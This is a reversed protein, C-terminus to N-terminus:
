LSTKKKKSSLWIIYGIRLLTLTLIVGRAVIDSLKEKLRAHLSHPVRRPAKIVPSDGDKLRIHYPRVFRGLGVFVDAYDLMVESLKLPTHHARVSCVSVYAMNAGLQLFDLAASAQLGLIQPASTDFIYFEFNGEKNGAKCFLDTKGKHTV